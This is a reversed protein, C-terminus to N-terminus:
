EVEKWSNISWSGSPGSSFNNNTLGSEYTISSGGSVYIKYGTAEKLSAGGSISIGGDPAYVVVAGAGGSVTVANDSYSNSLMMLYSGDTGSGTAHGGGSISINGDAIIVGDDSGYSSALKITGGGGLTIDGTVWLTGTLILTGGGSISLNGDIKKPGLTAGAWGVSYNGNYTGGSSADNEWETINSDSVPFAIYTPDPQSTNCSKNNGTGTQCYIEGTSNTYNVTHAQAFGSDTGIHLPNWISGSTSEILGNFGGLYIGFYYDIGYPNTNNWTGGMRGIKALGSSYNDDSAGIVYYKHKSSNADIVLWYTSSTSLVPNDNFSVEVWGYSSTVTSASLTGSTLVNNGPIGGNDEVIKITANSPNGVKKIYLEAKNLPSSESTKFSQAIDQSSYYKAFTINYNPSGSGNSQNASVAPSNASIATGTIVSSSDGKIPGNAYVNGNITGSGSLTVGGRGVQVGYNFSVGTSTTLNIDIKRQRSNTDGISSIQKQGGGLDTITTTSESEGLVLNETDSLNLGNKMRYVVDEIGSESLFYSQKSNFNDNAIRFERLVPTVIGVLITLSIFVFFFVLIMMAAGGNTKYKNTFKNFFM